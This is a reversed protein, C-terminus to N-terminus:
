WNYTPMDAIGGNNAGSGSQTIVVVTSSGGSTFTIKGERKQLFLNETVSFILEDSSLGRTNTHTIWARAGEDIIWDYETNSQVKVSVEGGKYSIEVYDPSVFFGDHQRQIVRVVFTKEAKSCTFTIDAIRKDYTDNPAVSIYRSQASVARTAEEAIWDVAPLAMEYDVNTQVEVHITGGQEDLEYTNKSIEFVPTEKQKQVINVEETRNTVKDVFSISTSRENYTDNPHVIIYHTHSSLSRTNAEEIWDVSPLRMEYDTNSQIEIQLTEGEAEVEYRNKTLVM